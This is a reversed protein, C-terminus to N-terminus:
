FPMTVWRQVLTGNRVVWVVAYSGAGDSNIAHIFIIHNPADYNVATFELNPNYLDVSSLVFTKDGITLEIKGYQFQPMEGDTGWVVHDDIEKLFKGTPNLSDNKAYKFHHKLPDFPIKSISLGIHDWKFFLSTNLTKLPTIKNFQDIFQLRSIHVYGFMPHNNKKYDVGIWQEGDEGFAYVLHGNKLTDVVKGIMGSSDRVNVYGDTDKIIAFQCNSTMPLLFLLTSCLITKKLLSMPM